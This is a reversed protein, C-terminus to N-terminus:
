EGHTALTWIGGWPALTNTASQPHTAFLLEGDPVSVHELPDASFNARLHLRDANALRWDVAIGTAGLEALRELFARNPGEHDMADYGDAEEPTDMVEPELIRQMMPRLNNEERRASTWSRASAALSARM